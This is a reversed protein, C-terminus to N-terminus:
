DDEVEITSKTLKVRIGNQLVSGTKIEDTFQVNGIIEFSLGVLDAIQNALQEITMNEDSAYIFSILLNLVVKSQEASKGNISLTSNSYEWKGDEGVSTSFSSTLYIDNPLILNLLFLPVDLNKSMQSIADELNIKITISIDASSYNKIEYFSEELEGEELKNEEPENEEPENGEIIIKIKEYVGTPTIQVEKVSMSLTNLFSLQPLEPILVGSQLISDMIAAVERDTLELYDSEYDASTIVVFDSSVMKSYDIEGSSLKPFGVQILKNKASAEDNKTHPNIIFENENPINHMTKVMNVLEKMNNIGYKGFYKPVVIKDIAFYGGTVIGVLLVIVVGLTIFFKLKSKLKKM